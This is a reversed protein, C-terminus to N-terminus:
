LSHDDREFRLTKEQARKLKGIRRLRFIKKGLPLNDFKKVGPYRPRPGFTQSDPLIAVDDQRRDLTTFLPMPAQAELLRGLAENSLDAKTLILPVVTAVPQPQRPLALSEHRLGDGCDVVIPEINKAEFDQPSGLCDRVDSGPSDRLLCSHM